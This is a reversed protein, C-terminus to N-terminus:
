NEKEKIPLESFPPSKIMDEPLVSVRKGDAWVEYNGEPTPVLYANEPTIRVFGSDSAEPPRAAPQVIFAYSGLFLSICLGTILVTLLPSTRRTCPSLLIRIRHHVYEFEFQGIFGADYSSNRKNASQRAINLLVETYDGRSNKSLSKCARSDARLELLQYVSRRLLYAAPNWWLLCLLFQVAFKYWLDGGLYHSIEHRLIYEVDSDDMETASKPLVVVPRFFGTMIPSFFTPVIHVDVSRKCGIAQAARTAIESIRPDTPFKTALKTFYYQRFLECIQKYLFYLAVLLWVLCILTGVTLSGWPSYTLLSFIKPYINWDNITVSGKIEVPFFCRLLCLVLVLVIIWLHQSKTRLLFLSCVTSVITFLIIAMFISFGNIIM